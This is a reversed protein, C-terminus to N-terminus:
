APALSPIKPSPAVGRHTSNHAPQNESETHYRTQKELSLLFPESLCFGNGGRRPLHTAARHSRSVAMCICAHPRSIEGRRLGSATQASCFLNHRMVFRGRASGETSLSSGWCRPFSNM